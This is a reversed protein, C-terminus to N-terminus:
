QANLYDSEYVAQANEAVTEPDMSGNMMSQMDTNLQDWVSGVLFSDYIPSTETDVYSFNYFDVDWQDFASFDVGTVKVLGGLAYNSAVYEAFDHGALKYALDVAAALKDPDDALKANIAVGYGFGGNQSNRQHTADSSQPLVAFGTNEYLDDGAEKLTAGIYSADWNGGIFAAASGDIYYERVDENTGSNFDKNFLDTSTFLRQVETLAAVFEPDTFSAGQKNVLSWFWDEGTYRDGLSSLFDSNAQWAGGNGFAIPTQGNASIDAAKAEVDDWTSPFTDGWVRKDYIVVTCTGGSVTPLAYIKGDSTTFPGFLGTDYNANDPSAAIIDTLDLVLGQDAWAATNMGQLMFVDPLDGAAALTAIQTKYDANAMVNEELTIGPNAATWEAIMTRIGDSSGNGQSEESTSYHMLTLTGTYALGDGSETDTSGADTSDATTNNDTSSSGSNDTSETSSASSGDSTTSGSDDGCGALMAATMAATLLIGLAKKKM